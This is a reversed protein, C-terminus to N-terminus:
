ATTVPKPPSKIEIQGSPFTEISLRVQEIARNLLEIAVTKDVHVASLTYVPSAKVSVSVPTEATQVARAALLATQALSSCFFVFPCSFRVKLADVGDIGFCTLNIEAEVKVPNSSMRHRVISLLDAHCEAPV